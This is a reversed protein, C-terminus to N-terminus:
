AQTGNPPPTRRQRPAAKASNSIRITRRSTRLRQSSRLAREAGCRMARRLMVKEGRVARAHDDAGPGSMTLSSPPSRRRRGRRPRRASARPATGRRATSSGIIMWKPRRLAARARRCRGRPRRAPGPRSPRPASGSRRRPVAAVHQHGLDVVHRGRALPCPLEPDSLHEFTVVSSISLDVQGASMRPAIMEIERGSGPPEHHQPPGPDAPAGGPQLEGAGRTATPSAGATDSRQDCTRPADGSSAPTLM